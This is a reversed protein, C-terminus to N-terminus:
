QSGGAGDWVRWGIIKGFKASFSCSFSSFNVPPPTDLFKVIYIWWLILMNVHTSYTQHSNCAIELIIMQPFHMSIYPQLGRSHRRGLGGVLLGGDVGGGQLARTIKEGPAAPPFYLGDINWPGSFMVVHTQEGVILIWQCKQINNSGRVRWRCWDDTIMQLWRSWRSIIGFWYTCLSIDFYSMFFKLCYNNTLETCGLLLKHWYVHCSWERKSVLRISSFTFPSLPNVWM